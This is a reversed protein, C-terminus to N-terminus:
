RVAKTWKFFWDDAYNPVAPNTARYLTLLGIAENFSQCIVRAETGYISTGGEGSLKEAILAPVDVRAREIRQMEPSIPM